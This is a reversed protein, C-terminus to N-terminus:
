RDLLPEVSANAAHIERAARSPAFGFLRKFERTFQSPSGYGVRYAAEGAGLGGTLLLLARHLRIKKLYQIPSLATVEKFAHHLTSGSVGVSRAIAAVDLPQDFNDHLFQIARGVRQAHGDRLALSRLTDGQEGSLVRFLIERSIGPGLVRCETPDRATRLLRVVADYLSPQMCSVRLASQPPPTQETPPMALLLQGVDSIDIELVLSLFPQRPSAEVTQASVPMPLAVLLYQTPNCEFCRDGVVARKRGQAVVCLSPRYEVALPGTPESARFVTLGPLPTPTIGDRMALREVEALLTGPPHPSRHERAATLRSM